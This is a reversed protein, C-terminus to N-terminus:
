LLKEFDSLLGIVHTTHDEAFEVWSHKVPEEQDDGCYDAFFSGWYKKYDTLLSPEHEHSERSKPNEFNIEEIIAIGKWNNRLHSVAADTIYHDGFFVFDPKEKGTLKVFYAELDKVNGELYTHQNDLDEVHCIIGKKDDANEDYRYFPRHGELDEFYIPKGCHSSVFDFYSRWEKGISQTMIFETYEAHSNTALFLKKGMDRLKQLMERYDERHQIYKAPEKCIAPFFHGYEGIRYVKDKDFHVYNKLVCTRIDEFLEQSTKSIKGWKKLELMKAALVVVPCDFYTHFGAHGSELHRYKWIEFKFAREKGYIEEIESDLLQSNQSLPQSVKM